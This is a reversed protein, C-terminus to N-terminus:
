GGIVRKLFKIFGSDGNLNKGTVFEYLKNWFNHPYQFDVRRILVASNGSDDIFDSVLGVSYDIYFVKYERHNILANLKPRNNAVYEEVAINVGEEKVKDWHAVLVIFKAVKFLSPMNQKIYNVFWTHLDDERRDGNIPKYPTILCFIPNGTVCGSLIGKIKEEFPSNKSPDFFDELDDGALDIFALNLKPLKKIPNITLGILDITGKPTSPIGQRDRFFQVMIDKSQRGRDFPYNMSSEEVWIKEQYEDCYHMLSSLFMSKGAQPFGIPIITTRNETNISDLIKVIELQSLGNLPIRHTGINNM